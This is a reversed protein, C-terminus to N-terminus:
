KWNNAPEQKIRNTKTCTQTKQKQNTKNKNIKIQRQTHINAYLSTWYM